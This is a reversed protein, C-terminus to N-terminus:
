KGPRIPKPIVPSPAWVEISVNIALARIENMLKHNEESSQAAAWAAMDAWETTVVVQSSGTAPRYARFEVVGPLALTRKIGSETWKSYAEVKDPHVDYKLVSLVM